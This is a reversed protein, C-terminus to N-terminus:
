QGKSKLSGSIIMKWEYNARMTTQREVRHHSNKKGWGHVRKHCSHGVSHWLHHPIEKWCMNACVSTSLSLSLACQMFAHFLATSSSSRAEVATLSLQMQCFKHGRGVCLVYLTCQENMTGFQVLLHRWRTFANNLPDTYVNCWWRGNLVSM